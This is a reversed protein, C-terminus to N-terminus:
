YGVWISRLVMQRQKFTVLKCSISCLPKHHSSIGPFLQHWEHRTSNILLLSAINSIFSLFHSLRAHTNVYNQVHKPRPTIIQSYTQSSIRKWIALLVLDDASSNILGFWGISAITFPGHWHRTVDWSYQWAGRRGLVTAATLHCDQLVDECAFVLQKDLYCSHPVNNLTSLAPRFLSRAGM